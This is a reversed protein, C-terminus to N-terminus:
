FKGLRTESIAERLLKYYMRSVFARKDTGAFYATGVGTPTRTITRIKATNVVCSRSCRVFSRPLVATLEGIRKKCFFCDSATHVVTHDGDSEFFLLEDFHLYSEGDGNKVAISDCKGLAAEIKDRLKRIDDDIVPARIIIEAEADPYAEIRVKM